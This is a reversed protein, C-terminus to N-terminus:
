GPDDLAKRGRETIQWGVPGEHVYLRARLIALFPLDRRDVGSHPVVDGHQSLFHLVMRERHTM